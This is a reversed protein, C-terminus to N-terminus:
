GPVTRAPARWESVLCSASRTPGSSCRDTATSHPPSRSATSADALQDIAVATHTDTHTDVGVIVEILEDPM